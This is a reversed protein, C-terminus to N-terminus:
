RGLRRKAWAVDEEITEKTTDLGVPQRLHRRAALGLGATLLLLGVAVLGAAAWGPVVLALAFGATVLLAQLALFGFTAAAVGLGAGLGKEKAGAALEAKALDLEARVLRNADEAVAKAAAGPGVTPPPGFRRRLAAALPPAGTKAGDAGDAGDPSTAPSNVAADM